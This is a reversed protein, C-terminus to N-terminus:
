KHPRGNRATARDTGQLRTDANPGNTNLAGQDSIHSASQGGNPSPHTANKTEIMNSGHLGHRANARDTGFLRTDANPGNSNARGQASIHASSRGGNPVDNAQHLHAHHQHTMSHRFDARDNGFLREDANPGNSNARGQASIHSSSRGGNPVGAHANGGMMHGAHPNGMGGGGRAAAPVSALLGASLVTAALLAGRHWQNKHNM